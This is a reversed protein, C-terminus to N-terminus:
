SWTSSAFLRSYHADQSLEVARASLSQPVFGHLERRRRISFDVDGGHRAIKMDFTYSLIVLLKEFCNEILVSKGTLGDSAPM